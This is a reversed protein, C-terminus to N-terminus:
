NIDNELDKYIKKLSMWKKHDGLNIRMGEELDEL